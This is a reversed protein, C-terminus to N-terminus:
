NTSPLCPSRGGNWFTCVRQEARHKVAAGLLGELAVPGARHSIELGQLQRLSALTNRVVQSEKKQRRLAILLRGTREYADRLVAKLAEAEEILANIGSSNGNTPAAATSKPQAGTGAAGNPNPLTVPEEKRVPQPSEAAEVPKASLIRGASPQPAVIGAKPLPVWVLQRQSDRALVPKNFDEVHVETLGMQAVRRLYQRDTCFRVAKGTCSSRVLVLETTDDHERSRARVTVAGNLDVTVPQCDDDKGPLRPLANALSAADEAHLQWCTWTPKPQPLVREAQPFRGDKDIRLHVCWPGVRLTVHTETRGVEVLLGQGLEKCGFVPNPLVLLDEQWPFLFGSQLLLQRGDTAVIVGTKGRLQLRDSNLKAPYHSATRVAETLAGLLGPDNATFSAPSPPCTPLKTLDPAEYEKAQPVGADEWTAATVKGDAKAELTVLAEGRGEFDAFAELPLAVTASPYSGGQHYVVTVDADPARVSLGEPCSMVVVAVRTQRPHARRCVTRFTRALSRAIQLM